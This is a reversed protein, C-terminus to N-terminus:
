YEVKALQLSVFLGIADWVLAGVLVARGLTTHLMTERYQANIWAMYVALGIPVAAVIFGSLRPAATLSKAEQRINRRARVTDAINDLVETLNGGTQRNVAIAAVFIEVDTSAIRESLKGIAEAANGGINAQDLVRRLEHRMPDSMEEATAEIARLFGQGARLSGAMLDLAEALQAEFAARRRAARFRVVFRPAAWVVVAVVVALLPNAHVVMALLAFLLAALLARALNFRIAGIELNAQDLEREVKGSAFLRRILGGLWNAAGLSSDRLVELRGLPSPATTSIQMAHDALRSQILRARRTSLDALALTVGLVAIFVVIPVLTAPNM